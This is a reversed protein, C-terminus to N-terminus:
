EVEKESIVDKALKTCFQIIAKASPRIKGPNDEFLKSPKSNVEILWPKGGEDVGIDIGLEGTIGTSRRGINEAIEISLEKMLSLTQLANRRDMWRLLAQLPRLLTGGRALNSVFEQENAVRAVMSTVGWADNENRHCLVRFDISRSDQTILCIGQQILFIRNTLLPKIRQYIEELSYISEIKATDTTFSTQFRYLNEKERVIKIINKGQSGHIPKIYVTPYKQVFDFLSEKSYIKTEPTYPILHNEERIHKYVEWKSLFRDNFLPINLKEIRNRFDQFQNKQELLRSHIRNYIVDPLPLKAPSWKGANFYYGQSSFQELSFVYFLGGNESIGQHLEECFGHISRFHPENIEDTAFDTLLGVVPGLQLTQNDRRYFAQLKIKISPLDLATMISDPIQVVNTDMEVIQINVKKSSRGITVNLEQDNNLKLQQFMQRSMQIFRDHQKSSVIPIISITSFSFSM